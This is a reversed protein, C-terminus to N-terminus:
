DSYDGDEGSEEEEKVGRAKKPKAASVRRKADKVDAEIPGMLKKEKRIFDVHDQVDIQSAPEKAKEGSQM